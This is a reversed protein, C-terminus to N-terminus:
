AETEPTPECTLIQKLPFRKAFFPLPWAGSVDSFWSWLYEPVWPRKLRVLVWRESM